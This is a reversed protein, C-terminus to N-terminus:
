RAEAASALTQSLNTAKSRRAATHCSFVHARDAVGLWVVRPANANGFRVTFSWRHLAPRPLSSSSLATVWGGQWAGSQDYPGAGVGATIGQATGARDSRLAFSTSGSSFVALGHPDCVLTRSFCAGGKRLSPNSDSQGGGGSSSGGSGGGSRGSTTAGGDDDHTAENVISISDRHRM